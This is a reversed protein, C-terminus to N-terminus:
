NWRTAELASLAETHADEMLSPFAKLIFVLESIAGDPGDRGDVDTWTRGMGDMRGDRGTRETRGDRGDTWARGRGDRETRERFFYFLMASVFRAETFVISQDEIMGSVTEFATPCWVHALPSPAIERLAAPAVTSSTLTLTPPWRAVEPLVLPM